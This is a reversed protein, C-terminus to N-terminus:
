KAGGFDAVIEAAKEPSLAKLARRLNDTADRERTAALYAQQAARMATYLITPLVGYNYADEIELFGSHCVDVCGDCGPGTEICVYRNDETVITVYDYDAHTAKIKHSLLDELAVRQQGIHVHCAHRAKDLADKLIKLDSM